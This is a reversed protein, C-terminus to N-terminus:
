RKPPFHSLIRKAAKDIEEEANMYDYWTKDMWGEWVERQSTPDIFDISMGGSRIAGDMSRLNAKIQTGVSHRVWLDADSRGAMLFGRAALEHQISHRAYTQNHRVEAPAEPSIKAAPELWLKKVHSFDYYPNFQIDGNDGQFQSDLHSACGAVLALALISALRFLLRPADM